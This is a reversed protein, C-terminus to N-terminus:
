FIKLPRHGCYIVESIIISENETVKSFISCHYIALVLNNRSCKQRLCYLEVTDTM